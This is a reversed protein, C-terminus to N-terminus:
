IDCPQVTDIIIFLTKTKRSAGLLDIQKLSLVNIRRMRRKLIRSSQVLLVSCKEKKFAGKAILNTLGDYKDLNAKIVVCDKTLHTDLV